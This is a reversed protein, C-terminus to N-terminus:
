QPQGSIAKTVAQAQAPSPLVIFMTGEKMEGAIRPIAVVDHGVVLVLLKGQFRQSLETLKKAGVANFDFRVAGKGDKNQLPTVRTLDDRSLAAQPLYWVSGDKLKLESLGRGKEPQALLFFVPAGQQQSAGTRAPEPAGNQGAASGSAAAPTAPTAPSNRAAPAADSEPAAPEATSSKQAQLAECGSLALSLAVIALIPSRHKM